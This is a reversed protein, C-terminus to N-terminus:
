KAEKLLDNFQRRNWPIIPATYILDTRVTLHIIKCGQVGCKRHTFTETLGRRLEVGDLTANYTVPTKCTDNLFSHGDIEIQGHLIFTIYHSTFDIHSEKMTQQEGLPQKTQGIVPVAILLLIAGLTKM